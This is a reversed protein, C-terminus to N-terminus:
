ANFGRMNKLSVSIKTIVQSVVPTNAGWACPLAIDLGRHYVGADSTDFYTKSSPKKITVSGTGLVTCQPKVKIRFGNNSKHIKLNQFQLIQAVSPTADDNDPDIATYLPLQKYTASGNNPDEVNWSPIWIVEFSNIKYQEFLAQFYTYSPMDQFRIAHAILLDTSAAGNVTSVLSQKFTYVGNKSQGIKPGRFRPRPVYTKAGVKSKKGKGM